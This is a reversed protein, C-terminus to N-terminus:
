VKINAIYYSLIYFESKRSIPELVNIILSQERTAEVVWVFTNTPIEGFINTQPDGFFLLDTMPSNFATIKKLFM